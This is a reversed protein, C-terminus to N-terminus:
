ADGSGNVEETEEEKNPEEDIIEPNLSTEISYLSTKLFRTEMYLYVTMAILFTVLAMLIVEKNIISNLM